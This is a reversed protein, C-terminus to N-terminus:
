PQETFEVKVSPLNADQFPDDGKAGRAEALVIAAACGPHKKPDNLSEVLVLEWGDPYHKDYDDHKWDSGEAGMDHPIWLHDSCVHGALVTGDEALALASHWQPACSNCFVYIKPKDTM